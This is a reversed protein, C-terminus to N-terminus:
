ANSGSSENVTKLLDRQVRGRNAKSNDDMSALQCGQEKVISKGANIEDQHSRSQLIQQRSSSLL